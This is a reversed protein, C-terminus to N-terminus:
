RPAAIASNQRASLVSLRELGLLREVGISGQQHGREPGRRPRLEGSMLLRVFGLGAGLMPEVRQDGLGAATQVLRRRDPLRVFGLRHRAVRGASDLPGACSRDFSGLRAPILFSSHPKTM